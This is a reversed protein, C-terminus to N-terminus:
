LISHNDKMRSLLKDQFLLDIYQQYSKSESLNDLFNFSWMHTQTLFDEDKKLVSRFIYFKLFAENMGFNYTVTDEGISLEITEFTDQIDFYTM